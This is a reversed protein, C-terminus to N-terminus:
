LLRDYTGRRPYLLTGITKDQGTRLHIPLFFHKYNNRCDPRLYPQDLFHRFKRRRAPRRM